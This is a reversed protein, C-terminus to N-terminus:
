NGPRPPVVAAEPGLWSSLPDGHGLLSAPVALSSQNGPITPTPYLLQHPTEEQHPLDEWDCHFPDPLCPIVGWGCVGRGQTLDISWGWGM